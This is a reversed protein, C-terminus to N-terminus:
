ALCLKWTNGCLEWDESETLMSSSPGHSLDSPSEMACVRRPAEPLRCARQSGAHESAQRSLRTVPWKDMEDTLWTAHSGSLVQKDAELLKRLVAKVLEAELLNYKSGDSNQSECNPVDRGGFARLFAGVESCRGKLPLVLSYNRVNVVWKLPLADVEPMSTDLFLIPSARSTSKSLFPSSM